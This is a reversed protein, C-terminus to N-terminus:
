RSAIFALIQDLTIRQDHDTDIQAFAPAIRPMAQVEQPTLYGDRNVDANAFNTRLQQLQAPTLERAEAAPTLAALAIASATVTLVSKLTSM